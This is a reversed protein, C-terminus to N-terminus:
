SSNRKNRTRTVSHVKGRNGKPKSDGRGVKGKVKTGKPKRPKSVKTKKGVKAKEVKKTVKVPEPEIEEQPETQRKEWEEKTLCRSVAIQESAGVPEVFAFWYLNGDRYVTKEEGDRDVVWGSPEKFPTDQSVGQSATGVDKLANQKRSRRTRKVPQATRIEVAAKEMKKKTDQSIKPM